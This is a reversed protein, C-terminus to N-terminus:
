TLALTPIFNSNTKGRLYITDDAAHLQFGFAEVFLLGARHRGIRDQFAKNMFKIARPKAEGPKSAVNSVIKHMTQLATKLEVESCEEKLMSLAHDVNHMNLVPPPDNTDPMSPETSSAVPAALVPAPAPPAVAPTAAKPAAAVPPAAVPAAVVPAVSVPVETAMAATAAVKNGSVAERKSAAAAKLEAAKAMMAEAARVADDAEQDARLAEAVQVGEMAAEEAASDVPAFSLNIM